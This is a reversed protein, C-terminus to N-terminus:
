LPLVEQRLRRVALECAKESVDCGVASFGAEKCAQLTPGSGICPDFIRDGKTAFLHLVWRMLAVPKQGPYVRPEKNAMDEQLM